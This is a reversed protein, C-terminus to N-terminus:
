RRIAARDIRYRRIWRQVQARHKGLAKAAATVNGGNAALAAVIQERRRRDTEPLAGPGPDGQAAAAEEDPPARVEGPLHELAIPRDGALVLAADLCKELERVNMPWRCRLLARAAEITLSVGDARRQLKRRLLARILLGIDERRERLPPLRVAFGRIRALLDARFRQGAVLADLDRHTATVIRVDVKVPRTTGVPLVENEQLLRLLAGQAGPALDGIEDLFLTGGDAARVLGPRDEDAGSFAGKRYGFLESEVLTPPLAACNVAQFAGKRGSLSHLAAAVVEKGTGSEGRILVSVTSPAITQIRAFEAELSPILTSLGAPRDREGAHVVDPTGPATELRQRFIFFTEGAEIVDGDALPGEGARRGGVFTGNKSGADQVAWSDLVRRLVAHASSMWPDPIGIRLQGGSREFVPTDSRGIAIEDVEALSCRAPAVRFPACGLAVFLHPGERADDGSRRGPRRSLTSGSAM